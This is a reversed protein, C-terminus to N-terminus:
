YDEGVARASRGFKAKKPLIKIRARGGGDVIKPESKARGEPPAPVSRKGPPLAESHRRKATAESRGGPLPQPAVRPLLFFSFRKNEKKRRRLRFFFVVVFWFGSFNSTNKLNNM